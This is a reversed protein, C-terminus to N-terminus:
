LKSLLVSRFCVTTQVILNGDELSFDILLNIIVQVFKVESLM